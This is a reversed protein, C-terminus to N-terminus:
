DVVMDVTAFGSLEAPIRIMGKEYRGSGLRIQPQRLSFSLGPRLPIDDLQPMADTLAGRFMTVQQALRASDGRAEAPWSAPDALWAAAESLLEDLTGDLVPRAAPQDQLAFYLLVHEGTGNLLDLRVLGARVDVRSLRLRGAGGPMTMDLAKGKGRGPEAGLPIVLELPVAFGRRGAAPGPTRSIGDFVLQPSVAARLGIRLAAPEVVVSDLLMTPDIDLALASGELPLAQPSSFRAIAQAQFSAVLAALRAPALASEIASRVPAGITDRLLANVPVGLGALMAACGDGRAEGQRVTAALKHDRVSLRVFTETHVVMSACGSRGIMGLMADLALRDFRSATRGVLLALRVPVTVLLEAGRAALALRPVDTRYSIELGAVGSPRSGARQGDDISRKLRMEIASLSVSANVALLASDIQLPAQAGSGSSPVLLLACAWIM